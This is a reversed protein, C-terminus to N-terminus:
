PAGLNSRDLSFILLMKVTWDAVAEIAAFPEATPDDPMREIRGTAPIPSPGPGSNRGSGRGTSISVNIQLFNLNM